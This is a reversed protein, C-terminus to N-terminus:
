RSVTFEQLWPELKPDFFDRVTLDVDAFEALTTSVGVVRMGAARAAQVGTVSDEFVVCDRPAFGLQRAAELYIDPFPKPRAVQHGDIIVRFCSRLGAADLVFSVNDPEANSAVGLPDHRRSRIFECAGPVLKEDLVPSMLTRYVAEKRSGHQFILERTLVDSPFFDRILEDNHKGLMRNEIDDIVLGHDKLYVRWAEAHTATSDVIVGDMDFILATVL